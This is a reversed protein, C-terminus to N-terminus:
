ETCPQSPKLRPNLGISGAEAGRAPIRLGKCRNFDSAERANHDIM